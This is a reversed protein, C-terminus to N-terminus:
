LRVRNSINTVTAKSRGLGSQAYKGVESYENLSMGLVRLMTQFNIPNMYHRGSMHNSITQPTVRMEEALWSVTKGMVRLRRKIM